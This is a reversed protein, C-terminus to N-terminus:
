MTAAASNSKPQKPYARQGPTNAAAASASADEWATIYLLYSAPKALRTYLIRIRKSRHQTITLTAGHKNGEGKLGVLSVEENGM